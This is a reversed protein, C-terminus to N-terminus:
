PHNIQSWGGAADIQAFRTSPDEPGRVLSLNAESVDTMDGIVGTFKYVDSMRFDTFESSNQSNYHGDYTTMETGPIILKGPYLTDYKGLETQRAVDNNHDVLTMFDLDRTDFGLDFSNEMTANGPENEGHVHLDGAYWGAAPNAVYPTYPDPTFSEDSWATDTTTTVGVKWDAGGALAADIYGAGLEVAWTGAPVPGPKYARTTNGPTYAKRTADSTGYTASDTPGNEGIGIMKVASGSWGRRQNMTFNGPDAANPEYVGLDLTTNDSNFSSGTQGDPGTNDYCYRVRMGTTGAPVTFPIQIFKGNLGPKFNGKTVQETGTLTADADPTPLTCEAGSAVAPLAFCGALVAAFISLRVHFSAPLIGM